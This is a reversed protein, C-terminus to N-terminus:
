GSLKMRVEGVCTPFVHWQGPQCPKPLCFIPGNSIMKGLPVQVLVGLDVLKDILEEGICIQEETMDLNPTHGQWSERLFNMPSGERLDDWHEPPFEWWLIQLYTPNPRTATYNSRHGKLAVLGAEIM